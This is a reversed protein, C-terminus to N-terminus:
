FFHFPHVRITPLIVVLTLFLLQLADPALEFPFPQLQRLEQIFLPGLGLLQCRVLQKSQLLDLLQFHLRSSRPFLESGLFPGGGLGDFM